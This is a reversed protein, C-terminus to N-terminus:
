PKQRKEGNGYKKRTRVMSRAVMKKLTPMDVDSLRKIYLCSKGTSHKGLNVLLDSYESFEPEFYVVLSQKRPSFGAIPMDGERGSEYKYHYHGFGVIGPGWMKPELKTVEKMMKLLSLSDERQQADPIKRLFGDVSVKTAKTKNEAM